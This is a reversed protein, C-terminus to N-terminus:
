GKLLIQLDATLQASTFDDGLFVRERGQQDIVYLATTHSVSSNVTAPAAFEAYSSWVPALEAQTGLLYHLYGQLQHAKIFSLATTPTDGKPDVSVAIVGVKQASSGLQMMTQHLKEAALPCADPCHTYFFTLVVPMGKFQALSVAQGAQDTLHFGPAAISGLYTGQLGSPDTTQGSNGVTSITSASKGVRTGVVAVILVVLVALTVVSLRSALRWNM